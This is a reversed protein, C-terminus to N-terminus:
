KYIKKTRVFREPVVPKEENQASYMEREKNQLFSKM